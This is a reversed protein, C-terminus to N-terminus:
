LNVRDTENGPEASGVPFPYKTPDSIIAQTRQYCEVQEQLTRLISQQMRITSDRENLEHRLRNLEEDKDAVQKELTSITQKAFATATDIGAQVVREILLSNELSHTADHCPTVSQHQRIVDYDPNAGREIKEMIESEPVNEVLMYQSKGLLFDMNLHGEGKFHKAFADALRTMYDAGVRKTGSRLGSIYSSEGEISKALEKQSILKEGALYDFARLFPANYRKKEEIRSDEAM